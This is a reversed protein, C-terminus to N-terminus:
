EKKLEVKIKAVDRGANSTVLIRLSRTRHGPSALTLEHVAPGNLRLPSGPGFSSAPGLARGGESLEADPPTV